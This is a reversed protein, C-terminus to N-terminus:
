ANIVALPPPAAPEPRAVPTPIFRDKEGIKWARLRPLTATTAPVATSFTLRADEWDEGTQQSALAAFGVEVESRGPSFRVDYAPYWRAGQTLYSLALRAPGRGELWAEVLYGQAATSGAALLAAQACLQRLQQRQARLKEDLGRMGAEVSAERADFFSWSAQWGGPELLAAALRPDPQPQASPRLGQLLARERELAARQDALAAEADRAAEIAKILQEAEGRPFEDLGARRVEVRGVSAGEAVLRVSDPDLTPPLLALRVPGSAPVPVEGQRTVRARDSYVTVERVPLRTALSISPTEPRAPPSVGTALALGVACLSTLMM